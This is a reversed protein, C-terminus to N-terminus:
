PLAPNVSAWARSRSIAKFAETQTAARLAGYGGFSHGILAAREADCRGAACAAEVIAALEPGLAGLDSSPSAREPLSPMLVAYGAASLIAPNVHLNLAGPSTQLDPRHASAVM